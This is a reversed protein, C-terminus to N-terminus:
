RQRISAILHEREEFAARADLLFGRAVGTDSQSTALNEGLAGLMDLLMVDATESGPLSEATAFDFGKCFEIVERELNGPNPRSEALLRVRRAKEAIVEFKRRVSQDFEEDATVIRSGTAFFLLGLVLVLVDLVHIAKVWAIDLSPVAAVLCAIIVGVNYIFIIPIAAMQFPWVRRHDEGGSNLLILFSFNVVEAIVIAILSMWFREGRGEFGGAILGAILVTALVTACLGILLFFTSGRRRGLTVRRALGSKRMKQEKM